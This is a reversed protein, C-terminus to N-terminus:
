ASVTGEAIGCLFPRLVDEPFLAFSFERGALLSDAALERRVRALEREAREVQGAVFRSLGANVARFAERRAANAPTRARRERRTLGHTAADRQAAILREKEELLPEAAPPPPDPLHRGPHFRLDRLTNELEVERAPDTGYRDAFPLHATASVAAYGPPEVGFFRSLLGDTVGDYKAGGIGHLFLDGLCLRAFLTTCLARTRLRIGRGPLERLAEVVCCADMSETLPFECFADVGDTLAVRGPGAPRVFVRRRSQEGERWVWLPLEVGEEGASLPPVPRNPADLGERERYDELAANYDERFRAAHACLHGVFWGFPDTECVQGITVERNDLGWAREVRRRFATLRDPLRPLDDGPGRWYAAALPTLGFPALDEELRLGFSDFLVADRVRTESWPRGARDADFPVGRVTPQERTGAPIRVRTGPLLDSDIVLNLAVGGAERAVRALAFNKAWVGPHFLEPQHGGVILPRSVEPPGACPDGHEGSLTRCYDTAAASVSERTWARLQGLTRGQVDLADPFSSANAAALDPLDALPPVALVARDHRPVKLSATAPSPRAPRTMPDASERRPAAALAPLRKM